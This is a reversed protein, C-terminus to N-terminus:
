RAITATVSKLGSDEDYAKVMATANISFLEGVATLTDVNVSDPLLSAAFTVPANRGPDIQGGEPTECSSFVLALGALAPLPSASLLSRFPKFTHKVCTMIFIGPM